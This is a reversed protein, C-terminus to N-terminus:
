NSAAKKQRKANAIADAVGKGAAVAGGERGRLRKLSVERLEPAKSGDSGM